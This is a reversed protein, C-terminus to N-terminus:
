CETVEFELCEVITKDASTTIAAHIVYVGLAQDAAFTYAFTFGEGAEVIRGNCETNAAIVAASGLTPDDAGTPKSEVALTVSAVSEGPALAGRDIAGVTADVAANDGCDVVATRSEGQKVVRRRVAM